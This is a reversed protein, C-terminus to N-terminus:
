SVEGPEGWPESIPGAWGRMRRLTARSRPQVAFVALPALCFRTHLLHTCSIHAIQPALGPIAALTAFSDMALPAEHHITHPRPNDLKGDACKDGQHRM